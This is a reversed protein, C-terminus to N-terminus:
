NRKKLFVFFVEALPLSPFSLGVEDGLEDGKTRAGAALVKTRVQWDADEDLAVTGNTASALSAAELSSSRSPAVLYAALFTVSAHIPRDSSRVTWKQFRWFRCNGDFGGAFQLKPLSLKTVGADNRERETHATRWHFLGTSLRM